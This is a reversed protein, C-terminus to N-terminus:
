GTRLAILPDLTAARWAPVLSAVLATAGLILTVAMFAAPDSTSVGTFQTALVRMLAFAGGLGIVLGMAILVLAERVIAALLMGPTAGLALRLGIEATRQAVSYAMVGYIGVGALLLAMAAFVTLLVAVTRPRALTKAVVEQMTMVDALPLEPDAERVAQRVTNMLSLPDRTAGVIFTMGPTSLQAHPVWVAPHLDQGLSNMKIDGVIGVIEWPGDPPGARVVLQRGIPNEGPFMRRAITENILAVQRSTSVDSAAFDRGALLPIGMTRFFGPTVPRVDASLRQAAAPAPRDSRYFGTGIGGTMPLFAAGATSWVGPAVAIKALAENFL